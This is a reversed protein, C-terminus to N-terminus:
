IMTEKIKILQKLLYFLDNTNAYQWVIVDSPLICPSKKEPIAEMYRKKLSDAIQKAKTQNIVGDCDAIKIKLIDTETREIYETSSIMSLAYMIKQIFTDIYQPYSKLDNSNYFSYVVLHGPFNKLYLEGIDQIEDLDYIGAPFKMIDITM